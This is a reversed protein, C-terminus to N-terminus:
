LPSPTFLPIRGLYLEVGGDAGTSLPHDPDVIADYAIFAKLNRVEQLDCEPLARSRTGDESPSGRYHLLVCWEYFIDTFRYYGHVTTYGEPAVDEANAAPM